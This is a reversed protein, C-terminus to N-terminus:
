NYTSNTYICSSKNQKDILSEDTISKVSSPNPSAKKFQYTALAKEGDMLLAGGAVAASLDRSATASSIVPFCKLYDKRSFKQRGFAHQAQGLRDYPTAKRPRLSGIVPDLAVKLADLVLEM